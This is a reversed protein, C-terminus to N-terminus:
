FYSFPGIRFGCGAALKHVMRSIARRRSTPCDYASDALAASLTRPRIPVSLFTLGWGPGRRFGELRLAQASTGACHRPIVEKATILRQYSSSARFLSAATAPRLRLSEDHPM